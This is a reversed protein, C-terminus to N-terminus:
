QSRLDARPAASSIGTYDGFICHASTTNAKDSVVPLSGGDSPNNELDSFSAWLNKDPTCFGRVKCIGTSYNLQLYHLNHLMCGMWVVQTAAAHQCRVCSGSNETHSMKSKCSPKPAACRMGAAGWPLYTSQDQLESHSLTVETGCSVRASM